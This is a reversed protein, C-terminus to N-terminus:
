ATTGTQGCAWASATPELWEEPFISTYLLCDQFLRANADNGAYTSFVSLKVPTLASTQGETPAETTSDNGAKTTAAETKPSTAPAATTADAPTSGCGALMSVGMAMAM